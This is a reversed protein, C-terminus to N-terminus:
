DSSGSEDCVIRTSAGDATVVVANGDETVRLSQPKADRRWAVIVTRFPGRGRVRLIHQREERESVAGGWATDAWNGLLFERPDAGLSYVAFDVDYRGTFQFESSGPPLPVPKTASPLVAPAETRPANPHTRPPPEIAGAPTVVPGVAMLNLSAVKPVDADEGAFRDCIVIIPQSPNSRVVTIARTWRLKDREFTARAYARDPLSRFAEQASRRWVQDGSLLAGDQDWAHGIAAEPVVMSHVYAGPAHPTYIASWDVSVPKGLAYLAVSGHDHHRHDRYFDGNVFFLATEDPTNWGHRLVSCYGPFTADALPTDSRRSPDSPTRGAGAVEHVPEPPAALTDDIMVTTTGFFFSHQKGGVAWADMLRKALQPDADRFGTGLLGFIESIEVGSDGLTVLARKGGMRPEPPTQLNLYFEAFKALKPWDRFPDTGGLQKVQLLTNLTPVFSAGIYHTCGIEAGSDHIFQDVTAELQREVQRVRQVMTPHRALFLAYFRRYGWQQIPMNETGLNLGHVTSSIPAHDDNWVLNAFLVAAAKLRVREEDTLRPDDLLQDIWVGYRQAALGGHWYHVSFHYIGGQHVLAHLMDHSQRFIQELCAVLKERGPDRWADFLPRTYTDNNYLWQFYAPDDRLRTKLADIGGRGMFATGYGEPPDPFDLTWRHVQDLNVGGHLNMQLNIPQVDGAPRIDARTGAFLGWCWRSRPFVRADPGRRYSSVSLSFGRQGGDGPPSTSIGVGSMHAGLARSAPGAFIGVINASDPSDRRFAQWYWGSDFCWPDWVCMVRWTDESSRYSPLRPRDYHLEVEADCDYGRENAARYRQGDPEYGYRADSSHHGRYRAHTPQVADYLGISWKPEIDTEEEFLVSPQGAQVTITSTYYGPGAPKLTQQGYRLEPHEFRYDVQIVAKLPGRELMKVSMGTAVTRKTWDADSQYELWNPGTGYWKGDRLLVGQVPAPLRDTHDAAVAMPVRVGTLGNAIECYGSTERVTVAYEFTGSPQGARLSFSKREGAALGTRVALLRGGDILQYPVESGDEAVLVTRQPDVSQSLDFTVIQDPHSVGFMERLVFPAAGPEIPAAGLLEGGKGSVWGTLPWALAAFWVIRSM